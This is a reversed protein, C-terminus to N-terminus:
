ETEHTYYTWPGVTFTLNRGFTSTSNGLYADVNFTCNTMSINSTTWTSDVAPKQDQNESPEHTEVRREFRSMTSDIVM